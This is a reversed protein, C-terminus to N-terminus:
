EGGEGGAYSERRVITVRLSIILWTRAQAVRRRFADRRQLLARLVTDLVTAIQKGNCARTEWDYLLFARASHSM